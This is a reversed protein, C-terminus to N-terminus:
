RLLRKFLEIGVLDCVGECIEIRTQNKLGHCLESCTKVGGGDVILDFIERAATKFFDVCANCLPAKASLPGTLSGNTLPHVPSFNPSNTPTFSPPPTRTTPVIHVCLSAGLVTVLVLSLSSLFSTTMSKKKSKGDEECRERAFECHRSPQEPSRASPQYRLGVNGGMNGGKFGCGPGRRGQGRREGVVGLGEGTQPFDVIEFPDVSFHVM